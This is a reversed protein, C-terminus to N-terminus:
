AEPQKQPPSKQGFYFGLAMGGLTYLPEEVKIGGAQMACITGVTMIALWARISVGLLKSDGMILGRASSPWGAVGAWDGRTTSGLEGPAESEM